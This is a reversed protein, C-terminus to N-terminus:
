DRPSPSTYLLCTHPSSEHHCDLTTHSFVRNQREGPLSHFLVLSALAKHPNWCWLPSIRDEKRNESEMITPRLHSESWNHDPKPGCVIGRVGRLCECLCRLFFYCLVWGSTCTFCSYRDYSIMCCVSNNPLLVALRYSFHVVGVEPAKRVTLQWQGDESLQLFVSYFVNTEQNEGLVGFVGNLFNAITGFFFFTRIAKINENRRMGLRKKGACRAM